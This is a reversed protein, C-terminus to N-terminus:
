SRSNVNSRPQTEHTIIEAITPVGKPRVKHRFSTQDGSKIIADAADLNIAAQPAAEQEGIEESLYVHLKKMTSKKIQLVRSASVGMETAIDDLTPNKGKKAIAFFHDLWEQERSNLTPLSSKQLSTIARLQRHEHELMLLTDLPGDSESPLVDEITRGDSTIISHISSAHAINRKETQGQTLGNTERPRGRITRQLDLIDNAIVRHMMALSNHTSPMRLTDCVGNEIITQLQTAYSDGIGNMIKQFKSKHSHGYSASFLSIAVWSIKKKEKDDATAFRDHLSNMVFDRLDRFSKHNSNPFHNMAHCCAEMQADTMPTNGALYGELTALAKVPAGLKTLSVWLPRLEEPINKSPLHSAPHHAAISPENGIPSSPAISNDSLEKM